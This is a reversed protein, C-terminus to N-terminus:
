SRRAKEQSPLENWWLIAAKMEAFEVGNRAGWYPMSMPVNSDNFISAVTARANLSDVYGQLISFYRDEKLNNEFEDLLGM